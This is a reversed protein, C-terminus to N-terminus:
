PLNAGEGLGLGARKVVKGHVCPKRVQREAIPVSNQTKTTKRKPPLIKRVKISVPPTWYCQDFARKMEEVFQLQQIKPAAMLVEDRIVACDFTFMVRYHGSKNKYDEVPKGNRDFMKFDHALGFAGSDAPFVPAYGKLFLSQSALSEVVSNLAKVMEAAVSRQSLILFERGEGDTRVGKVIALPVANAVYLPGSEDFDIDFTEVGNYAPGRAKLTLAGLDINDYDRVSEM